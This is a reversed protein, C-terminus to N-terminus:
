GLRFNQMLRKILWYFTSFFNVKFQGLDECQHPDASSSAAGQLPRPIRQALPSIRMPTCAGHVPHRHSWPTEARLSKVSIHESSLAAPAATSTRSCPTVTQHRLPEDAVEFQCRQLRDWFAVQAMESTTDPPTLHRNEHSPCVERPHKNLVLFFFFAPSSGSIQLIEVNGWPALRHEGRNLTKWIPPSTPPVPLKGAVEPQGTEGGQKMLMYRRIAWKM